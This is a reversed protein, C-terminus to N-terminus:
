SRFDFKNANIKIPLDCDNSVTRDIPSDKCKGIKDIILGFSDISNLSFFDSKFKYGLTL